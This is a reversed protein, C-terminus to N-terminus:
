KGQGLLKGIRFPGLMKEHSEKPPKWGSSSVFVYTGDEIHHIETLEYGHTDFATIPPTKFNLREGANQLFRDWWVRRSFHDKIIPTLACDM